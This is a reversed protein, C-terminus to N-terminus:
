SRWAPRRCWACCTRRRESGAALTKPEMDRAHRSADDPLHDKWWEIGVKRYIRGEKEWSLSRWPAAQPSFWRRPLAQGLVHALVGIGAVTVVFRGM